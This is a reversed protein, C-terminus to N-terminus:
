NVKRVYYVNRGLDINKTRDEKKLEERSIFIQGTNTGTRTHIEVRYLRFGLLALVPNAYFMNTRVYILGTVVLLAFVMVLSRGDDLDFSVLPVIYTAFFTLHEYNVDEIEIIKVPIQASKSIRYSFRFYFIVGLLIMFLLFLALKNDTAFSKWCAKGGHILSCDPLSVAFILLLVFLLGLSVVYLELREWYDRIRM